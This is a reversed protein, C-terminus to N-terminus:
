ITNKMKGFKSKSLMIIELHGDTSGIANNMGNKIIIMTIHRYLKKAGNM